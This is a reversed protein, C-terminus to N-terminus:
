NDVPTNKGIGFGEKLVTYLGYAALGWAGVKAWANKGALAMSSFIIPVLNNGLSSFTGKIFGKTKGYAPIIPNNMRLDSLKDQLAGTVPSEDSTTRKASIIYQFTDANQMQGGSMAHHRGTAYADYLVASVGAVGATKCIIKGALNM